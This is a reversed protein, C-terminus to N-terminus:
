GLLLAALLVPGFLIVPLMGGMCNMHGAPDPSTPDPVHVPERSGGSRNGALDLAYVAVTVSGPALRIGPLCINTHQPTTTVTYQGIRDEVVIQLLATDASASAHFRLAAVPMRELPQYELLVEIGSVIPAPPPTTDVEGTTEFTLMSSARQPSLSYIHDPELDHLAYRLAPHDENRDFLEGQVTISKTAGGAWTRYDYFGEKAGLQWVKTNLPVHAGDAPLVLPALPQCRGPAVRDAHATGALAVVIAVALRM